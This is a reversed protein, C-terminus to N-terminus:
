SANADPLPGTTFIQRVQGGAVEDIVFQRDHRGRLEFVLDGRNNARADVADVLRMRPQVDLHEDDTVSQFIVNPVGYFDPQAILTVYRAKGTAGTTQASFVITAGGGYTLEYAKFHEDTLVPLAAAAAAKRRRQAAASSTHPNAASAASSTKTKSSATSRAPSKAPPPALAKQALAEMQAQMKAADGPDAWSYGFPHPERDTADSVAIMQQLDSPVGTLDAAEFQAGTPNHSGYSLHPRDPDPGGIATEPGAPSFSPTSDQTSASRRRLTPRDPDVPAQNSSSQTSGTTSPSNSGTQSGGSSQGQNGSQTAGDHIKLHPRGDDNDKVVQPMIRAPQLKHVPPPILQRWAGYGFWYGDMDRASNVDFLGKPVGAQQLIYETGSELALPEPRALYLGGLQYTEGDFVSLPIIRSAHPQGPQGTWELVAIARPSQGAKKKTDIHGPYQAYALPLLAALLVAALWFSSVAAPRSRDGSRDKSRNPSRSPCSGDHIEIEGLKKKLAM